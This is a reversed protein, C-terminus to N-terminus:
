VRKLGYKRILRHMKTPTIGLLVAAEKQSRGHDLAAAVCIRECASKIREWADSRPIEGGLGCANLLADFGGAHVARQAPQTPKDNGLFNFDEHGLIRTQALAVARAIAHELERVNGPWSCDRLYELTSPAIGTVVRGLRHRYHEVFHQVLVPVDDPRDRLAPCRLEIVKLRYYLDERFAGREVDDALNRNTAAVIRVDVFVPATGGLRQVEGQQLVRLLKAQAELPLEGVEDLFLTGGQALEFKGKREGTAGTFAGKEHGFLESEILTAPLAACNVKVFPRSARESQRHLFNALLEKGTGSEGSILVNIPLPAIQGAEDLLCRVQRSHGLFEPDGDNCDTHRRLNANEEDLQEKLREVTRLQADLERNLDRITGDSVHAKERLADLECRMEDFADALSTIEDNARGSAAEVVEPREPEMVSRRLDVLRSVMGRGHFLIVLSSLLLVLLTAGLVWTLESQVREVLWSTSFRMVLAGEIEGKAKLASVIQFGSNGTAIVETGRKTNKSRLLAPVPYRKGLEAPVLHAVVYGTDDIVYATVIHLDSRSHMKRILADLLDQDDRRLAHSFALGAAQVMVNAEEIDANRARDRDFVDLIAAIMLTSMLVSVLLILSLKAQVGGLPWWSRRSGGRHRLAGSMVDELVSM